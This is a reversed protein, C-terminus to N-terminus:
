HPQKEVRRGSQQNAKGPPLLCGPLFTLRNGSSIIQAKFLHSTSNVFFSFFLYIYFDSARNPKAFLLLGFIFLGVWCFLSASPFHIGVSSASTLLM